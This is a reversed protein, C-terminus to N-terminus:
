GGGGGEEKPVVRRWVYRYLLVRLTATLPIALIAGLLGPLIQSWVLIAIIVTLPHLGTRGAMVKPSVILGEAMQVVAFVVLVLAPQVWYETNVWAITLAPVISLIIGLYPVISLVGCLMGILMGYPLGILSLGMGTAIGVFLAVLVQGRFFAALYNYVQEIVFVAERGVRGEKLPVYERWHKEIKEKEVLFYFVYIPVLMFGLALGLVSWFQELPKLLVSMNKQLWGPLGEVFRQGQDRIWEQADPHSQALALLHGKAWVVVQPVDRALSVIQAIAKPALVGGAGAVIGVVGIGVVIVAWPRALGRRSLAGILPEVIFAVVAAVGLPLLIGYLAGAVLVLLWLLASIFILIVGWSFLTVARWIWREQWPSPGQM